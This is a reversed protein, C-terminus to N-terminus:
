TLAPIPSSPESFSKRMLIENGRRNHRVCDMFSRILLLGRGGIRVEDSPESALSVSRSDFGPGDDRIRYSVSHRELRADVVIRRSKYPEIALRAEALEYFPREGDEQRLSSDLELNGHYLANSLAEHLAIGVRIRTSSDGLGQAALDGVLDDVLSPFLSSDNGLVFRSNRRTLCRVLARRKKELEALQLVHSLAKTLGVSLNRKPVYHSAGALLAQVALEESGEATVLIVPIHAFDRNLRTILELGNTGPIRLDTLLLEPARQSLIQLARDGDGAFRVKLGTHRCVIRAMLVRDVPQDDVILVFRDTTSEPPSDQTTDSPRNAWRNDLEASSASVDVLLGASSM